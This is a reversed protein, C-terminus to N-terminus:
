QRCHLHAKRTSLPASTDTKGAEAVWIFFGEGMEKNAALPDEMRVKPLLSMEKAKGPSLTTCLNKSASTLVGINPESKKRRLWRRM